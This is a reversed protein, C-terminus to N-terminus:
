QMQQVNNYSESPQQSWDYQQAPQQQDTWGQEPYIHQHHGMAYPDLAAPGHYGPYGWGGPHYQDMHGPHNLMMRPGGGHHQAMMGGQGEPMPPPPPPPPPASNGNGHPKPAASKHKKDSIPKADGKENKSNGSTAQAGQQQQQQARRTNKLHKKGIRHDEWQTPGNLWMECTPCFITEGERNDNDQRDSPNAAASEHEDGTDADGVEELDEVEPAAAAFKASRPSVGGCLEGDVYCVHVDSLRRRWRCLEPDDSAPESAAQADSPPPPALAISNINGKEEFASRVKSLGDATGHQEIVKEVSSEEYNIVDAIPAYPACFEIHLDLLKEAEFGPGDLIIAGVCALLLDGLARPAGRHILKDWSERRKVAKAFRRVAARLNDQDCQFSKHLNLKVCTVAYSIHNECAAKRMKMTELNDCAFPSPSTCSSSGGDQEQKDVNWDSLDKPASYESAHTYDKKECTASTAVPFRAHRVLQRGVWYKLAGEGIVALREFSPAASNMVSGHTLAEALLQPNRFTHHLAQELEALNLSSLHSYLKMSASPAQLWPAKALRESVNDVAALEHINKAIVAVAGFPVAPGKYSDGDRDLREQYVEWQKRDESYVVESPPEHDAGALYVCGGAANEMRCCYKKGSDDTWTAGESTPEVQEVQDAAKKVPILQALSRTGCLWEAVKNPLASLKSGDAKSLGQSLLTKNEESFGVARINGKADTETGLGGGQVSRSYTYRGFEKFYVKLTGDHKMERLFLYQPSSDCKKIRLLSGFARGRLWASVKNPLPKDGDERPSFYTGSDPQWKVPSWSWKGVKKGRLRLEEGQKGNRRYLAKDCAAGHGTNVYCVLLLVDNSAEKLAEEPTEFEKLLDKLRDPTGEWLENYSETRGLFPTSGGLHLLSHWLEPEGTLWHWLKHVAFVDAELLHAGVLARLIKTAEEPRAVNRGCATLLRSNKLLVVLRREDLYAAMKRELQRAGDWPHRSYVSLAAMLQLAGDGAFSLAECALQDAEKEGFVAQLKLPSPSPKTPAFESIMAEYLLLREIRQHVAFLWSPREPLESESMEDGSEESAEKEMTKYDLAWENECLKVVAVIPDPQLAIMEHYSEIISAKAHNWPVTRAKLKINLPQEANARLFYNFNSEMASILGYSYGEIAYIYIEKADWNALRYDKFKQPENNGSKLPWEIEGFETETKSSLQRWTEMSPDNLENILAMRENIQDRNYLELLVQKYVERRAETQDIHCATFQRRTICPAPLQIDAQWKDIDERPAKVRLWTSDKMFTTYSDRTQARVYKWIADSMSTEEDAGEGFVDSFGRHDQPKTDDGSARVGAEYATFCTPPTDRELQESKMDLEAIARPYSHITERLARDRMAASPPGSFVSARLGAPGTKSIDDSGQWSSSSEQQIKEDSQKWEGRNWWSNRDAWSRDSWDNWDNKDQWGGWKESWPQEKWDRWKSDDETEKSAYQSESPQETEADEPEGEGQM